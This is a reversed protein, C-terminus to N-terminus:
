HVFFVIPLAVAETGFLNMELVFRGLWLALLRANGHLLRSCVPARRTVIQRNQLSLVQGFANGTSAVPCSFVMM